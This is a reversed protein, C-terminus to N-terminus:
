LFNSFGLLLYRVSCSHFCSCPMTVTSRLTRNALYNCVCRCTPVARAAFCKAPRPRPVHIEHPRQRIPRPASPRCRLLQLRSTGIRNARYIDRHTAGVRNTSSTHMWAAHAVTRHTPSLQRYRRRRHDSDSQSVSTIRLHCRRQWRRWRMGCFKNDAAHLQTTSNIRCEAINGDDPTATPASRTSSPKTLKAAPVM